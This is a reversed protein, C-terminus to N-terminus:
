WRCRCSKASTTRARNPAAYTEANKKLQKRRAGGAHVIYPRHENTVRVGGVPLQSTHLLQGEAFVAMNTAGSSMDLFPPASNSRGGVRSALGAAM